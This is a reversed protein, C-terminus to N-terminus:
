RACRGFRKWFLYFIDPVDDTHLLIREPEQGDISLEKLRTGLVAAGLAYSGGAGWLVACYALRQSREADHGNHDADVSQSQVQELNFALPRKCCPCFSEWYESSWTQHIAERHTIEHDTLPSTVRLQRSYANKLERWLTENEQWYWAVNERETQYARWWWQARRREYEYRWWIREITEDERSANRHRIMPHMSSHMCTHMDSHQARIAVSAYTRVHICAHVYTTHKHTHARALYQKTKGGTSRERTLWWDIM